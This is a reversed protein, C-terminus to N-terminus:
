DEPTATILDNLRSDIRRQLANNAAALLVGVSRGIAWERDWEDVLTTRPFTFTLQIPDHPLQLVLSLRARDSDPFTWEGTYELKSEPGIRDKLSQDAQRVLALLDPPVTVPRGAADVQRISSKLM